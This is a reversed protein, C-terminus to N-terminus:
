GLIRVEGPKPNKQILESITMVKCSQKKLKDIAGDSFSFAAVTVKHDILGSGLVKGPVVVTENEKTFRNLRSINVIRRSRTSRELDTALRKWLPASEKIAKTKLEAILNLLYPNTPGTRKSM